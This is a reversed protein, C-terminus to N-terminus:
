GKLAKLAVKLQVNSWIVACCSYLWYDIIQSLAPILWSATRAVVRTAKDELGPHMFGTMFEIQQTLLTFGQALTRWLLLWWATIRSRAIILYQRFEVEATQLCSMALNKKHLSLGNYTSQKSFTQQFEEDDENETLFITSLDLQLNLLHSSDSLQTIEFVIFRWDTAVDAPVTIMMMIM